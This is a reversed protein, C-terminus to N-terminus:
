YNYISMIHNRARDTRNKKKEVKLKRGFAMQQKVDFLNRKRDLSLLTRTIASTVTKFSQPMTQEYTRGVPKDMNHIEFFKTETNYALVLPENTLMVIDEPVSTKHELISILNPFDRFAVRVKINRKNILKKHQHLTM